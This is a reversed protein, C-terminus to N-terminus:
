EYRLAVMTDVSAARRAPIFMAVLSVAVLGISVTGFTLPDTPSVEYLLSKLLRTLAFAGAIGAILGAAVAVL